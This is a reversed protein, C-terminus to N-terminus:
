QSSESDQSPDSGRAQKSNDVNEEPKQDKLAKAKRKLGSKVVTLPTDDDSADEIDDALGVSGKSENSKTSKNSRVSEGASESASDEDNSSVGDSEEKAMAQRALIQQKIREAPPVKTLVREVEADIKLREQRAYEAVAERFQKVTSSYPIGAMYSVQAEFIENQVKEEVNPWAIKVINAMLYVEPLIKTSEPSVKEELANKKTLKKKSSTDKKHNVVTPPASTSDVLKSTLTSIKPTKMCSERKSSLIKDTSLGELMKVPPKAEAKKKAKEYFEKHEKLYQEKSGEHAEFWTGLKKCAYAL